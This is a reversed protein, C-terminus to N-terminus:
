VQQRMTDDCVQQRMTDSIITYLDYSKWAKKGHAPHEDTREYDINDKNVVFDITHHFWFENTTRKHSFGVCEELETAIKKAQEVDNCIPRTSPPFINKKLQHAGTECKWNDTTKTDEKTARHSDDGIWEVKGKFVRFVRLCMPHATSLAYIVERLAVAQWTQVMMQGYTSRFTEPSMRNILIQLARGHLNSFILEIEHREFQHGDNYLQKMIDPSHTTITGLTMAERIALLTADGLDIAAPVPPNRGARQQHGRQQQGHQQHRLNAVWQQHRHQNQSQRSM